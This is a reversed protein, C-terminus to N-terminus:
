RASHWRMNTIAGYLMQRHTEQGTELNIIRLDKSFLNEDSSLLIAACHGDPSFAMRNDQTALSDTIELPHGTGTELHYLVLEGSGGDRITAWGAENNVIDLSADFIMPSITGDDLNAQWISLGDESMRNFWLNSNVWILNHGSIPQNYLPHFDGTQPDIINIRNENQSAVWRGDDSWVARATSEGEFETVDGTITNLFHIGQFTEATEPFINVYLYRLDPSQYVLSADRFIHQYSMELTEVDFARIIARQFEFHRESIFLTRSDAAWLIDWVLASGFVTQREETANDVLFINYDNVTYRPRDYRYRGDPSYMSRDTRDGTQVYFSMGTNFDYLRTDVTLHYFPDLGFALIAGCHSHFVGSVASSVSLLMTVLIGSLVSRVIQRM